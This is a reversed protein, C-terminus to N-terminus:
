KRPATLAPSSTKATTMQRRSKWCALFLSSGIAAVLLREVRGAKLQKTLMEQVKVAEAKGGNGEILGLAVASRVIGAWTLEDNM